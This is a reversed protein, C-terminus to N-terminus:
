LNELSIFIGAVFTCVLLEMFSRPLGVNSKKNSFCKALQAAKNHNLIPVLLESLYSGPPYVNSFVLFSESRANTSACSAM